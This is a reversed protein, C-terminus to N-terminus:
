VEAYHEAIGKMFLELQDVTMKTIDISLLDDYFYDAVGIYRKAGKINYDKQKKLVHFRLWTDTFDGYVELLVLMDKNEYEAVIDEASKTDCIEVIKEKTLDSLDYNCKFM